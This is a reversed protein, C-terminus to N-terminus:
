RMQYGLMMRALDAAPPPAIGDGRLAFPLRSRCLRPAAPGRRRGALPRRRPRRSRYRRGQGGGARCSPGRARRRSIEASRARRPALMLTAFGAAGDFCAPDAVIAAIDGDLHLADGWVLRGECRVEWVERLFGHTFREGRARRGFVVIDGGLFAADPALEIVSERELRAGDFLITEPPLFELAGGDGVTLAQRVVTTAGTSRYIKEAASATVHASAEPDVRVAIDIHDGAVLGGSTTVLAAQIPDDAEPTPFLVRLPDAQYLHALRTVGDRCPM